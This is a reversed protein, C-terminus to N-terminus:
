SAEPTYVFRTLDGVPEEPAARAATVSEDIQAALKEEISALAGDSLEGAERMSASLADIPDRERWLTVEAKDRYRDPDYM